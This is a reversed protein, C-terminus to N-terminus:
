RVQNFAHRMRRAVDQVYQDQSCRKQKMPQKCVCVYNFNQLFDKRSIWFMGDPKRAPHLQELIKPNQEWKESGDSWDGKWEYKGGWPNRMLIMYDMKGDLEVCDISILSFAHMEVLGDAERRKEGEDAVILAGM